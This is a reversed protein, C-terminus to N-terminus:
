AVDAVFRHNPKRKPMPLAPASPPTPRGNDDFGDGFYARPPPSYQYEEEGDLWFDPDPSNAAIDARIKARDDLSALAAKLATQHKCFQSASKRYTHAKCTCSQHGLNTLIMEGDAKVLSWTDPGCLNEKVPSVLYVTDKIRLIGPSKDLPLQIWDFTVVASSAPVIKM